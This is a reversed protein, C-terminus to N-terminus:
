AVRNTFGQRRSKNYERRESMSGEAAMLGLKGVFGGLDQQDQRDANYMAMPGGSRASQNM